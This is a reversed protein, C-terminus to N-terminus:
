SQGSMPYCPLGSFSTNWKLVKSLKFNLLARNDPHLVPPMM